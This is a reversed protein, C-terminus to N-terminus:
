YGKVRRVEKQFEAPTMNQIRQVEALETDVSQRAVGAGAGPVNMASKQQLKMAEAAFRKGIQREAHALKEESIERIVELPDDKLVPDLNTLRTELAKQLEPDLEVSFIGPHAKEVAAIFANEVPVQPAQAVYRIADALEPNADLISPKNAERERMRKEEAREQAMRTAWAQNDRAIKEAKEVRTRLEALDDKVEEKPADPTAVEPEKAIEALRGRDDRDTTANAAAELEAAAKDYEAQYEADEM